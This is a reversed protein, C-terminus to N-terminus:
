EIENRKFKLWLCRFRPKNGDYYFSKQYKHRPFAFYNYARMCVLGPQAVGVCYVFSM